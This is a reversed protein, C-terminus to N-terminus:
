LTSIPVDEVIGEDEAIAAGTIEGKENKPFSFQLKTKFRYRRVFDGNPPGYIISVLLTGSNRDKLVAKEFSGSRIGRVCIRPIVGEMVKEPDACTRDGIVLRFEEVRYRVPFNGVNRYSIGVNLAAETGKPDVYLQFAEANLCYEYEPQPLMRIPERFSRLVRMGVYTWLAALFVGIAVQIRPDHFFNFLSDWLWTVTGFIAAVTILWNTTLAVLINALWTGTDGWARLRQFREPM